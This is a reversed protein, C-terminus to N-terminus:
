FGGVSHPVHPRRATLFSELEDFLVSVAISSESHSATVWFDNKEDPYAMRIVLVQWAISPELNSKDALWERFGDLFRWETAADMGTM